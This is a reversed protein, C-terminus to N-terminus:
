RDGAGERSCARSESIPQASVAAEGEAESEPLTSLLGASKELIRSPQQHARLAIPESSSLIGRARLQYRNTQAIQVPELLLPPLPPADVM